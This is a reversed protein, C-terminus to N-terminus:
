DGIKKYVYMRQYGFFPIKFKTQVRTEILEFGNKEALNNFLRPLVVSVHDKIAIKGNPFFTNGIITKWFMPTPSSVVLIGNYKLLRNCQKFFYNHDHIHEIFERSYISDFEHNIFHNHIEMFDIEHTEDYLNSLPIDIDLGVVYNANLHLEVNGECCGIDLVVGSCKSAM